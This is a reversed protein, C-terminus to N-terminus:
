KVRLEKISKISCQPIALAEFMHGYEENVSMALVISTGCEFALFGISICNAVDCLSVDEPTLWGHTGNSDVWAVEVKKM